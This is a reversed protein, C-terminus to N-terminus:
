IEKKCIQSHENGARPYMVDPIPVGAPFHPGNAGALYSKLIPSNLLLMLLAVMIASAPM